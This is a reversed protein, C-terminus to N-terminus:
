DSGTRGDYKEKTILSVPQRLNHRQSGQHNHNQRHIQSAKFILDSFPLAFLELVEDIQFESSLKKPFEEIIQPFDNNLVLEINELNQTKNSNNKQSLSM